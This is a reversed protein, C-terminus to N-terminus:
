EFTWKGLWNPSLEGALKNALAVAEERTSAPATLMLGTDADWHGDEHILLMVSGDSQLFMGGFSKMLMEDDAYWIGFQGEGLPVISIQKHTEPLAEVQVSGNFKDELLLYDWYTGKISVTTLQEMEPVDCCWLVGQHMVNMRRPFPLLCVAALLLLLLLGMLLKNGLLKRM